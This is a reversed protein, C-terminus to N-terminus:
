EDSGDDDDHEVNSSVPLLCQPQWRGPRPRLMGRPPLGGAEGGGGHMEASTAGSTHSAHRPDDDTPDANDADHRATAANEGTHARM